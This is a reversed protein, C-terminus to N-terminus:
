SVTVSHSKTSDVKITYFDTPDVVSRRRMKTTHVGLTAMTPMEARRLRHLHLACCWVVVVPICPRVRDAAGSTVCDIRGARCLITAVFSFLLLLM